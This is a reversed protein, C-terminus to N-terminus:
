QRSRPWGSTPTRGRSAPSVRLASRVALGAVTMPTLWFLQLRTVGDFSGGEWQEFARAQVEDVFHLLVSLM